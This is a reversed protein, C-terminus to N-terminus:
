LNPVECFDHQLFSGTSLMKHNFGMDRLKYKVKDSSLWFILCTKFIFMVPSHSGHSGSTDYRSLTLSEYLCLSINISQFADVVNTNLTLTSHVIEIIWGHLQMRATYHLTNKLKLMGFILIWVFAHAMPYCAVIREHSNHSWQTVIHPAWTSPTM